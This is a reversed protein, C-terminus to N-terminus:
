NSGELDHVRGQLHVPAVAIQLVVGHLLVEPVDADVLDQLAGVLDHLHEDRPCHQLPLSSSSPISVFPQSVHRGGYDM